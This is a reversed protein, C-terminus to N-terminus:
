SKGRSEGENAALHSGHHPLLYLELAERIIPSLEPTQGNSRRGKAVHTLRDYLDDPLRVTIRTM